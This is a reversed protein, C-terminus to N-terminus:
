KRAFEEGFLEVSKIEGDAGLRFIVQEDVDNVEDVADFTDYHYHTLPIALKGWKLILGAEGSAVSAVGYASSEYTGAYAALEHSPQTGTKRKAAHDLKKRAGKEDSKRDIALYYANWDRPSPRGLLLDALSNRISTVALSRNLNSLVVFGSHQKPLLDVNSRSSHLAGGHSVLLEGRYDQVVWGLGYAELNTEPNSEKTSGEVRIITQPTHTEGLAEASVLRKGDIVGDALHLRLWQAMDRASSKIAGAGEINVDEDVLVIRIAGDKAAFTHGSVHEAANYGALDIRSHTMGLPEFIRTRIFDAWPMKSASAVVRGAAIFMINQYQYTTRFPATLAVNGSRRIVDESSFTTNDWLEDHRSLGTRHSVIDRLTVMSDAAPDALHFYELHKRVPDDWQLKKEDVLMAMATTTFAKSDSAIPFLTDPTVALNGGNERVGYGKVFVVKDNEVIAVAVGPVHWAKMAEGVIHDVASSDVYSQAHAIVPLLFLVIATVM